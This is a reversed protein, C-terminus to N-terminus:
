FGFKSIVLIVASSFFPLMLSKTATVYLRGDAMDGCARKSINDAKVDLYSVMIMVPSKLALRKVGDLGSVEM